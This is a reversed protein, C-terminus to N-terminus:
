KTMLNETKEKEGWFLLMDSASHKIGQRQTKVLNDRVTDDVKIEGGGEGGHISLAGRPLQTEQSFCSARLSHSM